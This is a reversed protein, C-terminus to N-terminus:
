KSSKTCPLFYTFGKFTKYNRKPEFPQVAVEGNQAPLVERSLLYLPDILHATPNSFYDTDHENKKWTLRSDDDVEWVEFHVEPLFFNKGGPRFVNAIREGRAIRQGETLGEVDAHNLHDYEVYYFNPGDKLNLEERTHRMLLAGEHGQGWDAVWVRRVTGPAPALIPEGLRGGDVGSHIEDRRSGDVDIWSGYLSTLPSCDFGKPYAPILGTEKIGYGKLKDDTAKAVNKEQQTLPKTCGAGCEALAASACSMALVLSALWRGITESMRREPLAAIVTMRPPAGVEPRPDKSPPSSM